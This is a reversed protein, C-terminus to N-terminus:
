RTRKPKVSRLAEAGDSRRGRNLLHQGEDLLHQGEHLAVVFQGLAHDAPQQLLCANFAPGALLLMVHPFQQHLLPQQQLL